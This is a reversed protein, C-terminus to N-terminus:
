NLDEDGTAVVRVNSFTFTQAIAEEEEEEEGSDQSRVAVLFLEHRLSM